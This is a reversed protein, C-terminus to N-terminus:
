MRTANEHLSAEHNIYKLTVFIDHLCGKQRFEKRITDTILKKSTRVDSRSDYSIKNYRLRNLRLIDVRWINQFKDDMRNTSRLLEKYLCRLLSKSSM